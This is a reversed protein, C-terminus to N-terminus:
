SVSVVTLPYVHQEVESVNDQNWAFWYKSISRLVALKASFCCIALKCDKTQDSWINFGCDILSACLGNCWQHLRIQKSMFMSNM